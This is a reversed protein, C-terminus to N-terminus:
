NGDNILSIQDLEKGPIEKKIKNKVQAPIEEQGYVEGEPLQATEEYYYDTETPTHGAESYETDVDQNTLNVPLPSCPLFYASKIPLARNTWLRSTLLLSNFSSFSVCKLNHNGFAFDNKSAVWM